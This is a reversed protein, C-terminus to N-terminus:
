KWGWQRRRRREGVACAAGRWGDDSRLSCYELGRGERYSRRWGRTRDGRDGGEEGRGDDGGKEGQEVVRAERGKKREAAINRGTM